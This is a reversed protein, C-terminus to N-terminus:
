RCAPSGEHLWWTDSRTSLRTLWLETVLLQHLEALPAPAGTIAAELATATQRPSILGAEVLRSTSLIRRLTPANAALGTYLSTGFNTKTQRALVFDPVLGTFARAALPKYRGPEMRQYAPISRAPTVIATDLFPAHVPVGWQQRAIADFMAHSAAMWELALRDHLAAPTVEPDAAGIREGVVDAVVRRGAATLWRAAPPMGCWALKERREPPQSGADLDHSLHTLATPYHTAATHGLQFWVQWPPLHWM